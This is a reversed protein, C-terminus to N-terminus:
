TYKWLIDADKEQVKVAPKGPGAMYQGEDTLPGQNGNSQGNLDLAIVECRSTVLYVKEDEIDACALIGLYGWDNVNGSALKPVVLQWLFDGTSEDLALLISRDDTFRPDRPTQNNTGVLLKGHGVVPNGYTQSGLKAIWKVNKTTALDIEETENKFEGPEFQSPLGKAPSYMNRGPDKGGWRPWDEAPSFPSAVVLAAAGALAFTKNKSKIM